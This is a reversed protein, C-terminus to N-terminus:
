KVEHDQLSYLTNSIRCFLHLKVFQLKLPLVLLISFLIPSTIEVLIMSFQFLKKYLLVIKIFVLFSYLSIIFAALYKDWDLGEIKKGGRCLFSSISYNPTM